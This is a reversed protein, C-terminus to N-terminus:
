DHTLLFNRNQRYYRVISIPVIAYSGFESTPLGISSITDSLFEEELRLFIGTIHFYSITIQEGTLLKTKKTQKLRSFNDNFDSIFISCCNFVQESKGFVIEFGKHYTNDSTTVNKCTSYISAIFADLNSRNIRVSDKATMAAFVIPYQHPKSVVFEIYTYNGGSLNDSITQASCWSMSLFLSVLMTFRMINRKKLWNAFQLGTPKTGYMISM